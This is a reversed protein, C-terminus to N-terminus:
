PTPTIAMKLSVIFKPVNEWDCYFADTSTAEHRHLWTQGRPFVYLHIGFCILITCIYAPHFKFSTIRNPVQVKQCPRSVRYEM